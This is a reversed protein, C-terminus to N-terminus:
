AWSKKCSQFQMCFMQAISCIQHEQEKAGWSPNPTHVLEAWPQHEICAICLFQCVGVKKAMKLSKKFVKSSMNLTVLGELRSTVWYSQWVVRASKVSTVRALSYVLRLSSKSHPEPLHSYQQGCHGNHNMMIYTFLEQWLYCPGLININDGVIMVTFWKGNVRILAVIVIISVM